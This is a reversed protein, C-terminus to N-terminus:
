IIKYEIINNKVYFSDKNLSYIQVNLDELWKKIKRLTSSLTGYKPNYILSEHLRNKYRNLKHKYFYGGYGDVGALYIEDYGLIFALNIAGILTSRHIMLPENLSKAWWKFDVENKDLSVSTTRKVNEYHPLNIKKDVYFITKKWKPIVSTFNPNEHTICKEDYVYYYTTPIGLLFFQNIGLKDIHKYDNWPVKNISKGTACIIIKM